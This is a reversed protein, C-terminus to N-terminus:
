RREAIDKFFSKIASASLDKPTELKCEDLGTRDLFREYSIRSDDALPDSPPFLCVVTM